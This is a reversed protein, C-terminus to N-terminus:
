QDLYNSLYERELQQAKLRNLEAKLIEDAYSPKRESYDNSM